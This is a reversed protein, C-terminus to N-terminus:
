GGYPLMAMYRARHVALKVKHQMKADTGLRRRPLLKGKLSVCRQLLELDKYDIYKRDGVVNESGRKM